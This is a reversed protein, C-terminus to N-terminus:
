PEKTSQSDDRDVSQVTGEAIEKDLAQYADEQSAFGKVQISEHAIDLKFDNILQMQTQNWDTPIVINTFLAAEEGIDLIGDGDPGMYNFVLKNSESRKEDLVFLPNVMPIGELMKLSYGPIRDEVLKQGSGKEDYSGSYTDDFRITQLILEIADPDTILEEESDLIYVVLRTYAPEQGNKDSVVNKVTPNKYVTYGPYMNEGDGDEPDWEPEKIDVDQDGVTFENVVNETDTFYAMTLGAGAAIVGTMALAITGKKMWKMKKM